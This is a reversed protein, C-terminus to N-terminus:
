ARGAVGVPAPVAYNNSDSSLWLVNCTEEARPIFVFLKKFLNSNGVKSGVPL